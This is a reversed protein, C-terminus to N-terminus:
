SVTTLVFHVIMQALIVVVLGVLAFVIANKAGSVKSADGGSTIFRAGAVIIMIVALAGIVITLLNIVSTIVNNVEAGGDGCGDSGSAIGIGICAQDRSQSAPTAAMVGAATLPLVGLVGWLALSISVVSLLRKM